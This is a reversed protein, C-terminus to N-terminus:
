VSVMMPGLNAMQWFVWQMIHSCQLSNDHPYFVGKKDYYQAIYQLIAGSEFVNHDNSYDYLAPIKSNPCINM